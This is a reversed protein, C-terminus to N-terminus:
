GELLILHLHVDLAVKTPFPAINLGLTYTFPILIGQEPISPM